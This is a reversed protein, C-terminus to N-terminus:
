RVVGTAQITINEGKIVAQDSLTLKATRPGVSGNFYNIWSYSGGYIGMDNRTRDLDTFSPQNIGADICPSGVQLSYDNNSENSFMPDVSIDHVGASFGDAYNSSSNNYIDNFLFIVDNVNFTESKGVGNNNGIIINNKLQVDNFVNTSNALDNFYIGYGGNGTFINNSIEFNIGQNGIDAKWEMGNLGNNKFLCNSVKISEANQYNHMYGTLSNESIECSLIAAKANNFVSKGYIGYGNNGKLVCGVLTGGLWIDVGGDTGSGNFCISDSEAYGSFNQFGWNTNHNIKSGIVNPSTSNQGNVGVANNTIECNLITGTSVQIGSTGCDTIKCYAVLVDFNMAIGIGSTATVSFGILSAGTSNFDFSVATGNSIIQVSDAVDTAVVHVKKYISIAGYVGKSVKVTDGSVSADIATQLNEGDAVYRTTQAFLSAYTLFITLCFILRKM